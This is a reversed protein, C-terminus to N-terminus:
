FSVWTTGNWKYYYGSYFCIGAGSVPAVPLASLTSNLEIVGDDRVEFLKVGSQNETHLAVSTSTNNTSRIDLTAKPNDITGSTTQFSGIKLWKNIEAGKAAVGNYLRSGIISLHDDQLNGAGNTSININAKLTNKNEWYWAYQSCVGGNLSYSYSTGYLDTATPDDESWSGISNLKFNNSSNSLKKEMIIASGLQARVRLGIGNGFMNSYIGTGSPHTQQLEFMSNAANGSMLVGWERGVPNVILKADLSADYSDNISVNGQHSIFDTWLNTKTNGSSNVLRWPTIDQFTDRYTYPTNLYTNYIRERGLELMALNTFHTNDYSTLNFTNVYATYENSDEGIERLDIDKQPFTAGIGTYMGVNLYKTTKDVQPFSAINSLLSSYDGIYNTNNFDSEGQDWILVDLKGIGSANLTNLLAYLGTYPSSIWYSIPQGSNGVQVLRVLSYPNEIALKEAFRLGMNDAGNLNFPLQGLVPMIWGSGNWVKLNRLQKIPYISSPQQGISNSQGDIAINITDTIIKSDILTDIDAYVLSSDSTRTMLVQRPKTGKKLGTTPAIRTKGGRKGLSQSFSIFPILILILTKLIHKM